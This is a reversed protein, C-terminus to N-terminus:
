ARLAEQPETAAADQPRARVLAPLQRQDTASMFLAAFLFFVAPVGYYDFLNAFIAHFCMATFAALLGIGLSRMEPDATSLARRWLVWAIGPLAALWLILGIIGQEVAIHFYFGDTVITPGSRTYMAGFGSRGLGVGSPIRGFTDVADTWQERRNEDLGVAKKGSETSTARHELIKVRTDMRLILYGGALSGIIAAALLLVRLRRGRHVLALVGMGLVWGAVAARSMSLILCLLALWFVVVVGRRARGTAWRAACLLSVLSCLAGWIDEELLLSQMRVYVTALYARVEDVGGKFFAGRNAVYIRLMFDPHKIYVILSIVALLTFTVLLAGFLRRADGSNTRSWRVVFYALIPTLGYYIGFVVNLYAKDLLTLLVGYAGALFLLLFPVDHKVLRVKERYVITRMVLGAGMVALIIEMWFRSAMLPLQPYFTWVAARAFPYWPLIWLIAYIGRVPLTVTRLVVTTLMGLVLLGILVKPEVAAIGGAVAVLVSLVWAPWTRRFEEPGREAPLGRATLAQQFFAM